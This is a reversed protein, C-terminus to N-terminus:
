EFTITIPLTNKIIYNKPSQKFQYLYSKKLNKKKYFYDKEVLSSFIKRTEYYSFKNDVIYNIKRVWFGFKLYEHRYLKKKNFYNIIKKEIPTLTM